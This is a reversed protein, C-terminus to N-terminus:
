EPDNIETWYTVLFNGLYDQIVWYDGDHHYKGFSYGVFKGDQNAIRLLVKNSVKREADFEDTTSVPPKKISANWNIM